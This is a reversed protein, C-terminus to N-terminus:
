SHSCADIQLSSPALSDVALGTGECPQSIPIPWQASVETGRWLVAQIYECRPSQSVGLAIWFVLVSAVIDNLIQGLFGCLVM